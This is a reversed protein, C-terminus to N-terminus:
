RRFRKLLSLFGGAIGGLFTPIGMLTGGTMADISAGITAGTVFLSSDWAKEELRELQKKDLKIRKEPESSSEMIIEQHNPEPRLPKPIELDEAFALFFANIQEPNLQELSTIFLEGLWNRGDPTNPPPTNPTPPDANVVAVAPVGLKKGDTVQAIVNNLRQTRGKLVEQFKESTINDAHTFVTLTRNWITEGFTQHIMKLANSDIDERHIDLRRVYWLVDPSPCQDTMQKLYERDLKEGGYTEELGPTDYITYNVDHYEGKFPEVKKTQPDFMNTTAVVEGFLSNITASKGIGSKGVQLITFGKKAERRYIEKLAEPNSEIKQLIVRKVSRRDKHQLEYMLVTLLEDLSLARIAKRADGANLSVYDASIAKNVSQIGTYPIEMWKEKRNM